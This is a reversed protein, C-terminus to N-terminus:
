HRLKKLLITIPRPTHPLHKVRRTMFMALDGPVLKVTEIVVLKGHHRLGPLLKLSLIAGHLQRLIALGPPSKFLLGLQLEIGLSRGSIARASQGLFLVLVALIGARNRTPQLIIRIPLLRKENGTSNLFGM